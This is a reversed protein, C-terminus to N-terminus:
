RVVWHPVGQGALWAEAGPGQLMALTALTGAETCRGAAVTVSRPAGRVPWGDRPDLIHGYRVGEKLLYRRADGSTALAGSILELWLVPTSQLADPREVGVQWASGDARPGSVALDGGFNVLMPLAAIAQLQALVRDVAYEKGIGGLDIEMGAPLMIGPRQWRLKHWGVREVLVRVQDPSPVRDSGDFRWAERLVGSTVDFLGDSMAHCAAAYDLLLATEDDVSVFEGRSRHLMAIVSDDRYRSFKAEIRHAEAAAAGLLERAQVVDANEVLLECPSAMAKFRGRWAGKGLPELATEVAM